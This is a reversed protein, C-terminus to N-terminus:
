AHYLRKKIRNWLSCDLSADVPLRVPLSDISCYNVQRTESALDFLLRRKLGIHVLSPLQEYNEIALTYEKVMDDIYGGSSYMGEPVVPHKYPKPKMATRIVKGGVALVEKEGLLKSLGYFNVPNPYDLENYYGRTGDFVYETSWYLIKKSHKAVNKTGIANVEYFSQKSWDGMNVDTLAALHVVLDPNVDKLCSIVSGENTIDIDKRTLFVPKFTFKVKKLETGLFGNGGTFAVIKM